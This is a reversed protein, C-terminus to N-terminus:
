QQILQGSVSTQLSQWTESADAAVCGCVGFSYTGPDLFLFDEGFTRFLGTVVDDPNLPGFFASESFIPGGAGDQRCLALILSGTPGLTKDTLVSGAVNVRQETNTITFQIPTGLFSTPGDLWCLSTEFDGPTDPAFNPIEDISFDDSVQTAILAAPGTEGQPGQIGQPGQPGQIGPPGQVGQDGQPGQIGPPGQIGQLGQIGQEGQEGQPGQIGQEGQPGQIGQLGQLGQPGVAGRAAVLEWPDGADPLLAIVPARAVYSSGDFQVADNTTYATVPDFTGRWVFALGAEGQPGQPGEPGQPGVDGQPGQPGVDGQPGTLGIPGQPGVDGQPGQPGVEGQPGQPGVDGQAGTLGIPGQPGVDGQPGQPGIQGRAAILEWSAPADAPSLGTVPAVAVYSSGDFQVADNTTYAVAPDFAGTWVFALGGEGKPGAPGQGGAPGSGGTSGSCAALVTAALLAATGKLSVFERIMQNM